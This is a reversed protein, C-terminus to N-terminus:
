PTSSPIHTLRTSHTYNDFVGHLRHITKFTFYHLILVSPFIFIASLSPAVQFNGVIWPIWCVFIHYFLLRMSSNRDVHYYKIMLIPAAIWFAPWAYGSLRYPLGVLPGIFFSLVGYIIAVMLWLPSDILLRKHNRLLELSVVIPAIGFITLLAVMTDIPIYPNFACIGITHISGITLWSPVEVMLIPPCHQGHFAYTHTAYTNTWIQFGLINKFFNSPVKLLMYLTDNLDHINSQGLSGYFLIVAMGLVSATITAFAVKWQSRYLSVVAFVLALLITSERTIQLFFLAIIGAWIKHRLILLFFLSLISAHYIDPLYPNKFLNLTFPTFLIAVAVTPYPTTLKIISAITITLTILALFSAVFFSQETSLNGVLRLARVMNTHLFRTSFPKVANYQRGEAMEKYYYEDSGKQVEYNRQWTSVILALVVLSALLLPSGLLPRLGKNILHLVKVSQKKNQNTEMNKDRHESQSSM